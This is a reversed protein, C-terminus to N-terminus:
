GCQLGSDAAECLEEVPAVLAELQEQEEKWCAAEKERQRRKLEDTLAALEGLIGGGVYERIVLGNVKRSRTYYDGGRERREWAMVRTTNGRETQGAKAAFTALVELYSTRRWGQSYYFGNDPQKWIIKGCREKPEWGAALLRQTEPDVIQVNAGPEPRAEAKRARRALELYDVM